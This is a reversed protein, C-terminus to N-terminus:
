LAKKEVVSSYEVVTYDIESELDLPLLEVFRRRGEAYERQIYGSITNGKRFMLEVRKMTDLKPISRPKEAIIDAARRYFTVYRIESFRIRARESPSVADMPSIRFGEADMGLADLVGSIKRGNRYVVDVKKYLQSDEFQYSFEGIDIKAGDRLLTRSTVKQDDVVIMASGIPIIYTMLRKDAVQAEITAHEPNVSSHKLRVDVGRKSGVVLSLRSSKTGIEDLNISGTRGGTPDGLIILRGIVRHPRPRVPTSTRLAYFAGIAGVAVVVLAAILFTIGSLSLGKTTITFPIPVKEFVVQSDNAPTLRLLGTYSNTGTARFGGSGDLKLVLKRMNLEEGDVFGTLLSLGSPLEIAVDVNMKLKSPDQIGVLRIPYSSEHLEGSKIPGISINQQPFLVEPVTFNIDSLRISTGLARSWLKSKERLRAEVQETQSWAQAPALIVSSNSVLQIPETSAEPLSVTLPDSFSVVRLDGMKDTRMIAAKAGAIEAVTGGARTRLVCRKKSFLNTWVAGDHLLIHFIGENAIPNRRMEQFVIDTEPELGLWGYGELFIVARSADAIRVHNKEYLTTGGELKEWEGSSPDGRLVVGTLDSIETPCLEEALSVVRYLAPILEIEKEARLSDIDYTLGYNEAVFRGMHRDVVGNLYCYQIYWEEESISGKLDNLSKELNEASDAMSTSESASVLIIGKSNRDGRRKLTVIEELARAVGRALNAEGAPRMADLMIGISKKDGPGSIKKMTLLAPAHSVSIIGIYDGRQAEDAFLLVTDKVSTLYPSMNDSADIVFILSKNPDAGVAKDPFTAIAAVLSVVVFVVGLRRLSSEAKNIGPAM